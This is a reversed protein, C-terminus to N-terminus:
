AGIEKTILAIIKKDGLKQAITLPTFGDKSRQKVNAGYKILLKLSDADSTTVALMIPTIENITVSKNPDAGLKLLTESAETNGNYVAYALPTMKNVDMVDIEIGKNILTTIAPATYESESLRLVTEAMSTILAQSKYFLKDDSVKKTSGGETTLKTLYARALIESSKEGCGEKRARESLSIAKTYNGYKTLLFDSYESRHCPKNLTEVRHNYVRDLSEWNGSEELLSILKRYIHRIARNHSRLQNDSLYEKLPRDLAKQYIAIANKSDGQKEYALGWNSYLWMNDTGLSEAVNFQEIAMNSDGLITYTHGLLVYVNPDKDDIEKAIKLIRQAQYVGNTPNHGRVKSDEGIKVRALEIYARVNEPDDLIIKELNKKAVKLREGGLRSDDILRISEKLLKKHYQETSMGSPKVVVKKENWTKIHSVNKSTFAMTSGLKYLGAQIWFTEFSAPMNNPRKLILRETHNGTKAIKITPNKANLERDIMPIALLTVGKGQEGNYTYQVDVTIDDETESIININNISSILTSKDEAFVATGSLLLALIILTCRCMIGSLIISSNVVSRVCFETHVRNLNISQISFASSM